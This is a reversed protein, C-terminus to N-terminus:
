VKEVLEETSKSDANMAGSRFGELDLTVYRFGFAKLTMTIRGAMELNLARKLENRAIEIRAVEGHVRVRFERFGIARLFEEGKEVKSLREITVPVGHAIRSSLCPSAPKDWSTLGLKKSLQRIEDKTMGAEALPSRVKREQAAITGPRFDFTDDANTGDVVCVIGHEGAFKVLKEYLESKCFYCRNQSNARYDPNELESTEIKHFNFLFDAATYQAETRQFESVSPSLGLVCIARVGLEQTAILGLYSSDVGGSYAVLVSGMERMLSRLKLEKEAANASAPLYESKQPKAIM